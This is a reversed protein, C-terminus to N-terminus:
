DLLKQFEDLTAGTWSADLLSDLRQRDSIANLKETVRRGEAGFRRELVRGIAERIGDMRGEQLGEQLAKQRERLAADRLTNADRLAKMRGEYLEREHATQFMIRLREFARRIAGERMTVPPADPDWEPANKLFCCWREFATTAEDDRVTVKALEITHIELCDSFRLGPSTTAEIVFRQHALGEGPFLTSNLFHIAVTRVLQTYGDGENLQDSFLKSWYYLARDQYAPQHQVQMEVNIRTGDGLRAKVDLISYKDDPADKPNFPNLLEVERIDSDLVANLLSILLDKNDESGFLCKFAYDVKPDIRM